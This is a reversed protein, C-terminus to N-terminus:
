CKIIAQHPLVCYPRMEANSLQKTLRAVRQAPRADRRARRGFRSVATGVAAYDIGEVREAYIWFKPSTFSVGRLNARTRHNADNHLHSFSVVPPVGTSSQSSILLVRNRFDYQKGTTLRTVSNSRATVQNVPPSNALHHHWAGYIGDSVNTLRSAGGYRFRNDGSTL